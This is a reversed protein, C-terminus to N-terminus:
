KLSRQLAYHRIIKHVNLTNKTSFYSRFFGRVVWQPPKKQHRRTFFPLQQGRYRFKNTVKGRAIPSFVRPRPTPLEWGHWKIVIADANFCTCSDAKAM